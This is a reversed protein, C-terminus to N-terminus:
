TASTRPTAPTARTPAAPHPRSGRGLDGRQATPAPRLVALRTPRATGLHHRDAPERDRVRRQRRGARRVAGREEQVRPDPAAGAGATARGRALPGRRGRRLRRDHQRVSFRRVGWARAAELANFLGLTEARLYEIPDPLDYRGAALHVIGTIEHRTGLDLFAAQDTTDLPEVVAGGALFEPVQTSRHATVVVSEGLDLLARATHSGISGLGGTVLIVAGRRGARVADPERLRAPRGVTPPGLDEGDPDAPADIQQLYSPPPKTAWTAAPRRPTTPTSVTSRRWRPAGRLTLVQPPFSETDISVAVDPNARLARVRYAEHRIHPASIFTPMVLESGTWRSGAPSWVPSAMPGPSRAARRSGRTSCSSRSSPRSCACTVRRWTHPTM